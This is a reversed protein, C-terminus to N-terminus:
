SSRDVLPARFRPLPLRLDGKRIEVRGDHVRAAVHPVGRQSLVHVFGLEAVLDVPFEVADLVGVHDQEVERWRTGSGHGQEFQADRQGGALADDDAAGLAVPTPTVDLDGAGARAYRHM